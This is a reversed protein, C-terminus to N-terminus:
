GEKPLWSGNLFPYLIGVLLTFFWNVLSAFATGKPHCIEGLYPWGLSGPGLEFGVIFVCCLVLLISDNNLCAPGFVFAGTIGVVVVTQAVLMMPRKGVYNM